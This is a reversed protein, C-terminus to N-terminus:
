ENTSGGREGVRSIATEYLSRWLVASARLDEVEERLSAPEQQVASVGIRETLASLCQLMRTLPEADHIRRVLAEAAKADARFETLDGGAEADKLSTELRWLKGRLKGTADCDPVAACCQQLEAIAAWMEAFPVRDGDHEATTQNNMPPSKRWNLRRALRSREFEDIFRMAPM